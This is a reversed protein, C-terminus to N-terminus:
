TPPPLYQRLVSRFVRTPVYLSLKDSDGVSVVGLLQMTDGVGAVVPGGSAGKFVTCNTTVLTHSTELERCRTDYTLVAGGRGLKADSSYGAMTITATADGETAAYAPLPVVKERPVAARLRLLAWDADMGGGSAVITAERTIGALPLSFLIPQSLDRYYELCHWASLIYRGDRNSASSLLTATCHEDIHLTDANEWKQGPVDLKGIALMWQPSDASYVQRSDAHAEMVTLLLLYFLPRM